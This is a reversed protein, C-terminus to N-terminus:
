GEGILSLLYVGGFGAVTVAVRRVSPHEHAHPLLDTGGMYLFFGAYAALVYALSTESIDLTTGVVAGALPAVAVVLLWTWARRRNGSQHLVFSVTNIGDAFDHAVVALLVLLGTDLDLGFALGIGIGDIFTHMALAAAGLAGVESHARVQEPRDRHHLVIARELLFFVIFGLGALAGVRSPDGVLEMAEPLVHFLAVAVLIAGTLAIATTLDRALRFAVLGGAIASAVTLLALPIAIWAM